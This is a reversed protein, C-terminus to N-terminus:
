ITLRYMRSPVRNRSFLAPFSPSYPDLADPELSHQLTPSIMEQSAGM